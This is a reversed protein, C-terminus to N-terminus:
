IIGLHSNKSTKEKPFRVTTIILGSLIFTVANIIMAGTVGMGGIIAGALALGVLEVFKTVSELTSNVTMYHEKPILKPITAYKCPSVFSEISSTLFTFIFLHWTELLKMYYLYATLLVIISRLVDGIIIMKKKSFFDAITGMFSSFLINPLVNFFYITALLLKSGTLQYVMFGYAIMDISDGFRSITNALYLRTFDTYKLIDKM